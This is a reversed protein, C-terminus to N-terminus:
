LKTKEIPLISAREEPSTIIPLTRSAVLWSIGFAVLGVREGYFTLREISSSIAEKTLYDVALIVMSTIIAVGCAAYVYSRWIAEKHQKSKARRYFIFCFIALVIFMIAASIGHVYPIIEERDPNGCECPFMAVGLSAIAAIKSLVAETTSLGNYALLFTSISFLFGVFIDRPWKGEHYSASISDIPISSFFATLNALTLAIIGVMLKLAHHNIEYENFKLAM